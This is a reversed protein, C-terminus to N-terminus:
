DIGNGFGNDFAERRSLADDTKNALYAALESECLLFEMVPSRARDGSNAVGVAASAGYPTMARDSGVLVVNEDGCVVVARELGDVDRAHGQRQEAVVDGM